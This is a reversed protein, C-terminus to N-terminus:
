CFRPAGTLDHSSGQEDTRALNRGWVGLPRCRTPMGHQTSRVDGDDDSPEGLERRRQQRFALTRTIQDGTANTFYTITEAHQIALVDNQM